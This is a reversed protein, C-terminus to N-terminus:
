KCGSLFPLFNCWLYNKDIYTLLIIVCIVTVLGVVILVPLLWKPFNKKAAQVPAEEPFDDPQPAHFDAPRIPSSGPPISAQAAPKLSSQMVVPNSPPIVPKQLPPAPPIPMRSVMTADPDFEPVVEFVLSIHEGLNIIESTHLIHPGLLRQNNIITGNTSGLDEITYGEPTLKVVAHHRSVEADNILIDTTPDRGIIVENKIIPYIKGPNPGARVIFQYAKGVM